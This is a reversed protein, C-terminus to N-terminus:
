RAESRLQSRWLDIETDVRCFEAIRQLPTPALAKPLAAKLCKRYDLDPLPYCDSSSLSVVVVGIAGRQIRKLRFRNRYLSILYVYDFM